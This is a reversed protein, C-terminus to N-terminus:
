GGLGGIMVELSSQINLMTALNQALQGVIAMFLTAAQAYDGAAIATVLAVVSAVIAAVAMIMAIINELELQQGGGSGGGSSEGNATDTNGSALKAKLDNATQLLQQQTQQQQDADGLLMGQSQTTAYKDYQGEFNKALDKMGALDKANQTQTLTSSNAKQAEDLGKLIDSKAQPALTKTDNVTQKAQTLSTDRRKAEKELNTKIKQFENNQTTVQAYASLVNVTSNTAIMAAVAFIGAVVLNPRKIRHLLSLKM